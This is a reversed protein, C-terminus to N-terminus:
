VTLIMGRALKRKSNGSSGSAWVRSDSDCNRSTMSRSLTMTMEPKPSTQTEKEFMARACCGQFLVPPSWQMKRPLASMDFDRAEEELSACTRCCPRNVPQGWQIYCRLISAFVDDMDELIGRIHRGLSPIHWPSRRACPPLHLCTTTQRKFSADLRCPHHTIDFGKSPHRLSPVKCTPQTSVFVPSGTSSLSTRLLYLFSIIFWAPTCKKM